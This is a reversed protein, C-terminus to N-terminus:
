FLTEKPNLRKFITFINKVFIVLFYSINKGM